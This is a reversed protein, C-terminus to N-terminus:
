QFARLLLTDRSRSAVHCSKIISGADAVRTRFSSKWKWGQVNRELLNITFPFSFYFLFFLWFQCNQSSPFRRLHYRVEPNARPTKTKWRHDLLTQHKDTTIPPKECLQLMIAIVHDDLVDPEFNIRAARKLRAFTNLCAPFDVHRPFIAARHRPSRVWECHSRISLQTKESLAAHFSSLRLERLSRTLSRM